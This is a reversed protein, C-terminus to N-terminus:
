FVVTFVFARLFSFAKSTSNVGIVKFIQGLDIECWSFFHFSEFLYPQKSPVCVNGGGAKEM